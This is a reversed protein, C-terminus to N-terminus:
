LASLRIVRLSGADPSPHISGTAVREWEAARSRVAKRRHEDPLRFRARNCLTPAADRHAAVKKHTAPARLRHHAPAASALPLSPPLSDRLPAFLETEHAM